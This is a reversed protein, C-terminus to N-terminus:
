IEIYCKELCYLDNKSLIHMVSRRSSHIEMEPVLVLVFSNHTSKKLEIHAVSNEERSCLNTRMKTENENNKGYVLPFVVSVFVSFLLM